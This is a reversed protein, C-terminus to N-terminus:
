KILWNIGFIVINDKKSDSFLRSKLEFDIWEADPIKVESLVNIVEPKWQLEPNSSIVSIKSEIASDLILSNKISLKWSININKFKEKDQSFDVNEWLVKAVENIFVVFNNSNFKFYVDDFDWKKEWKIVDIVENKLFLDIIQSEEKKSNEELPPNIISDNFTNVIDSLLNKNKGEIDTVTKERKIENEMIIYKEIEEKSFWLIKLTDWEVSNLSYQIKWWKEFYITFDINSDGFEKNTFFVKFNVKLERNKKDTFDYNWQINIKWWDFNSKLWLSSLNLFDNKNDFQTFLGFEFNWKDPIKFATKQYNLFTNKWIQKYYDLPINNKVNNDKNKFFYWVTLGTFVVLLAVLTIVFRKKPVPSTNFHIIEKITDENSLGTELFVQEEKSNQKNEM